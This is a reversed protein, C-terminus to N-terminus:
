PRRTAPADSWFVRLAGSSGILHASAQRGLVSLATATADAMAGDPHLVTVVLHGTRAGLGTRPDIVHSYREGNIEVFQETGGSTAVAVNALLTDGGAIAIRWGVRGPPPDGAVLDGGAEVLASPAGRARLVDLAQRLIFGKAIGGLDLRM